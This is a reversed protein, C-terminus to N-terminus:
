HPWRRPPRCWCRWCPTTGMGLPITRTRLDHVTLVLPLRAAVLADVWRQAADADLHDFGVHLHVLNALGGLEAVVSPAFVPDAEGVPREPWV